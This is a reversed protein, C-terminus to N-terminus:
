VPSLVVDFTFVVITGKAPQKRVSHEYQADELKFTIQRTDSTRSILTPSACFSEEFSELTVERNFELYLKWSWSTKEQRRSRRHRIPEGFGSAAEWALVSKPEVSVSGITMTRGDYSVPFYVGGLGLTVLATYIKEKHTAM